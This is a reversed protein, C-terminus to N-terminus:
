SRGAGRARDRLGATTRSKRTVVCPDRNRPLRRQKRDHANDHAKREADQEPAEHPPLDGFLKRDDVDWRERQERHQEDDRTASSTVFRM